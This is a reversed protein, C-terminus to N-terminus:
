LRLKVVVLPAVQPREAHHGVAQEAAVEREGGSAALVWVAPPVRPVGLTGPEDYPAAQLASTALKNQTPDNNKGCRPFHLDIGLKHGICNKKLFQLQWLRRKIAM